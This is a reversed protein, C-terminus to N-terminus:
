GGLQALVDRKMEQVDPLVNVWREFSRAGQGVFMGLGNHIAVGRKECERLWKTKLPNYILDSVMAGERINEIPFPMDDIRPSMGISTTNILLDFRSAAEAETEERKMPKVETNSTCIHSIAEAKEYTRNTVVIEKVGFRSLVTTVARAAGGAGIILVRMEKLAPGTEDLLSDLYGQGDTNSGFLRGNENVVTNVAGIKEAEEDIEDLHEMISVKHPVTVNWGAVGLVKLSEVAEGLKDPEVDFAHYRHPLNLRNFARNHMLPSMSHEVPSGLLAFLKATM